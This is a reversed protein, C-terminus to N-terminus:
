IADAYEDINNLAIRTDKLLSNVKDLSTSIESDNLLKEWEACLLKLTQACLINANLTLAALSLQATEINNAKIAAVLNDLQQHNDQTYDDLMFLALEATSQHKLYQAFDFVKDTKNETYVDAVETIMFVEPVESEELDAESGVQKTSAENDNSTTNLQVPKLWPALAEILEALTSEKTLKGIHWNECFPQNGSQPIVDTLSFVAIDVLPKSTMELLATASFETILLSYQGAQWLAKQAAEHCIVQVQLGLWSLLRQLNQHQQPSHVALLLPLKSEVYHNLTFSECPLLQNNLKDSVLLAQINHLFSTKCLIQETQSYFGFREYSLAPTQLVMLKPQLSKPLSNIQETVLDLHNLAMDSALILLDLKHRNLYKANVQQQFSDIRVLQKFQGKASQISHEVVEALATNNSLLMVKTNELIVQQTNNTLAASALPLEFSLQYGDDVLQAIINDGHQKALLINFAYILPSKTVTSQSDILQTILSPLVDISHNKVKVLFNVIQQGDRKDQLQVYLHLKSGQCSELTIDILLNILQQFLRSDIKVQTALQEDCSIFFQNGNLQLETQKNFLIAHIEDVLNIDNLILVSKELQMEHVLQFQIIQQYLKTLPISLDINNYESSINDNFIEGQQQQVLSLAAEALYQYCQLEHSLDDATKLQACHQQHEIDKTLQAITHKKQALLQQNSQYQAALAQYEEENHEPKAISQVQQMILQTEACNAVVSSGSQKHLSRQIIEVSQLTSIKIQERLRWLSYLFVLLSLGIALILILRIQRDSLQLDLRALIDHIINASNVQEYEYPQLLLQRIKQQQTTLNGQYDQALRIYGQWKSLARQESFAIKEFSEMQQYVDILQAQQTSETLRKNQALVQEANLRLLEYSVIPTQMSLQEFSTLLKVLLAKLTQLDNLQQVTKAYDRARRATLINKAQETQFQKELVQYRNLTKDIIPTLSVLILQLQIVSSQKLQENRSHSDQIRSVIDQALKNENLWHQYIQGNSGNLQLLQRNVAILEAHLKVFNKANAGVLLQSILTEATQLLQIQKLHQTLPLLQNEELAQKSTSSQYFFVFAFGIMVIMTLLLTVFKATFQRYLPKYKIPAKHQILTADNETQEVSGDIDSM